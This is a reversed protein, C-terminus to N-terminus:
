GVQETEVDNAVYGQDNTGRKRYRTGAFYKSRRAILSVTINQAALALSRQQWHGHIIPMVWGDSQLAGRLPRHVILTLCGSVQELQSAAPPSSKTLQCTHQQLHPSICHLTCSVLIACRSLYSNWVFMSAWPDDAQLDSLSAQVTRWVPWTYSFYFNKTLEM